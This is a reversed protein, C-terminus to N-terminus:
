ENVASKISNKESNRGPQHGNNASRGTLADDINQLLIKPEFPKTICAMCGHKKLADIAQDQFEEALVLYPLTFANASLSRRFSRCAEPSTSNLDVILIDVSEQTNHLSRALILAEETSVALSVRYDAQKLILCLSHQLNPRSEVLLIHETSM